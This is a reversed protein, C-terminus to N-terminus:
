IEDRSVGFEVVFGCVGLEGHTRHGMLKLAMGGVKKLDQCM